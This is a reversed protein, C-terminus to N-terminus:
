RLEEWCCGVVSSPRGMLTLGRVYACTYPRPLNRGTFVCDDNQSSASNRGLSAVSLRCSLARAPCAKGVLGAVLPGSALRFGSFAGSEPRQMNSSSFFFVRAPRGTASSLGTSPGVLTKLEAGASGERLEMLSTGDGLFSVSLRSFICVAAPPPPPPPPSPTPGPLRWASRLVCDCFSRRANLGGLGRGSLTSCRMAGGKPMLQGHQAALGMHIWVMSWKM